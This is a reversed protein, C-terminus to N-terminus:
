KEGMQALRRDVSRILPTTIRLLAWAWLAIGLCHVILIPGPAYPAQQQEDLQIFTSIPSLSTVVTIEFGGGIAIPGLTFLLGCVFLLVGAGKNMAVCFCQYILGYCVVVLSSLVASLAIAMWNTQSVLHPRLIALPVAIAGLFVVLGISSCILIAVFNLTREGILMDALLSRRGRLRWAWSLFSERGPTMRGMFLLALITHGMAFRVAPATLGSGLAHANYVFAAWVLDLGFLVVYGQLKSASTLLPQTLRRTMFGIALAAVGAQALPTLLVYPIEWDFFPMKASWISSNDFVLGKLSLIPTFLGVGAAILEYFGGKPGFRLPLSSAIFTILFLAGALGGAQTSKANPDLSHQLGVSAMMFTSTALTLYMFFLTDLPVSGMAACLVAVPLTSLALLYSSAPEGVAKGVLIQLPSLAAIRQFDLTRSSVEAQMSSATAGLAIMASIAFQLSIMAVFYVRAWDRIGMAQRYYYLAMGGALLIMLYGSALTFLRGGRYKVRMAKLILPQNWYDLNM